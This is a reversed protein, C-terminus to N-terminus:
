ITTKHQKAFGMITKPLPRASQADESSILSTLETLM